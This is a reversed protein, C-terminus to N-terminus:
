GPRWRQPNPFTNTYSRQVAWAGINISLPRQLLQLDGEDDSFLVTVQVYHPDPISEWLQARLWVPVDPDEKAFNLLLMYFVLPRYTTFKPTPSWTMVKPSNTTALTLVTRLVLSWRLQSFMRAQPRGHLCKHEASFTLKSEGM